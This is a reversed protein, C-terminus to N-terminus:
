CTVRLLHSADGGAGIFGFAGAASAQAALAGGGAGAMPAAVIPTPIGTFGCVESLDMVFLLHFCGGMLVTFANHIKSM